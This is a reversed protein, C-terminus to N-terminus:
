NRLLKARKSDKSANKKETLKIDKNPKVVVQIENKRARYLNDKDDNIIVCNKFGHNKWINQDM